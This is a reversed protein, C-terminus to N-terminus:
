IKRQATELESLCVVWTLRASVVSIVVITLASYCAKVITKPKQQLSDAADSLKM